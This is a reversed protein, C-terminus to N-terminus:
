KKFLLTILASHTKDISGLVDPLPYYGSGYVKILKFGYLEYWEKLWRITYVCRHSFTNGRDHKEKSHLALPNGISWHKISTNTLDFPTWGWLLSFINHWSSLNNTAVVTYGSKKLVRYSEAIFHDVDSLHEIVINSIVCDVSGNKLPWNERDLDSEYVTIDRKRALKAAKNVVEIGFVKKANMAKKWKLTNIGDWCGVDLLVKEDGVEKLAKKIDEEGSSEANKYLKEIYKKIM